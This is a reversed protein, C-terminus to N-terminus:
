DCHNRTNIIGQSSSLVVYRQVYRYGGFISQTILGSRSPAASPTRPETAPKASAPSRSRTKTPSEISWRAAYRAAIVEAPSTLDTTVLTLDYGTTTNSDRLLVVRVTRSRYVGYWLCQHETITVSDTRGYRRVV